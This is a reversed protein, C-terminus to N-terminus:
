SSKRFKVVNTSDSQLKHEHFLKNMMAVSQDNRVANNLLNNWESKIRKKEISVVSIFKKLDKQTVHYNRVTANICYFYPHKKSILNYFNDYAAVYAHSYIKYFEFLRRKMFQEFTMKQFQKPYTNTKEDFITVPVDIRPKPAYEKCWYQDIIYFGFNENLHVSKWKIKSPLFEVILNLKSKATQNEFIVKGIHKSHENVVSLDSEVGFCKFYNSYINEITEDKCYIKLNEIHAM